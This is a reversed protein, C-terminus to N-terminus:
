PAPAEIKLATAFLRPGGVAVLRLTGPQDITGQWPKGAALEGRPEFAFTANAAKLGARAAEAKSPALEVAPPLDRGAPRFSVVLRTAGPPPQAEWHWISGQQRLSAKLPAPTRLRTAPDGLLAYMLPQDRRLKDTNIPDELSGEVDDLMRDMVFDRATLGQRQAALWLGGIHRHDQGLADLMSTSTHYNTLPHSETTAAIAAVSGGPLALLTEALCAKEGTFNGAECSLLVTPPAPDGTAFAAEADAVSFDISQGRFRMSHFFTTNAHGIMAAVAGGRRLAEAFDEDHAPPWGCLPTSPYAALVWPEAWPPMHSQLTSLLVSTAMRDAAPTYGAAGGWLPLRLDAPSPARGEYAIIKAVIRQLTQPDRVPIRGVPVDLSGDADLDGWLADAAFEHRQASRWRYLKRWQTAVHWPEAESGRQTDGVLLITDPRPPEAIAAAPKATSITVTLGQARRHKALPALSEEFLPTTVVLWRGGGVPPAAATSASAAPSSAPPAPSSSAAPPAPASTSNCACLLALGLPLGARALPGLGPASRHGRHLL